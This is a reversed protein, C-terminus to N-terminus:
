SLELWILKLRRSDIKLRHRTAYYPNEEPIKKGLKMSYVSDVWHKEGVISYYM